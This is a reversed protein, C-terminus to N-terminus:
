DEDEIDKVDEAEAIIPKNFWSYVGYLAGGVLTVIGIIRVFVSVASGSLIFLIVAMLIAGFINGADYKYEIGQERLKSTVFVEVGSYCLFEIGEVILMIKVIVNLVNVFIFPLCVALLGIAIDFISKILVVKRIEDDEILSKSTLISNIGNVISVIGLIVVTVQVSVQPNIIIVLGIVCVLVALMINKYEKFFDM